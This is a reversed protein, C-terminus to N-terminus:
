CPPPLSSLSCVSFWSRVSISPKSPFVPIMTTAAVLRASTSSGARRRGPRKSRCTDTSTGSEFPRRSIRLTCALFLLTFGSIERASIALRTGPKEPAVQGVEHVLRGDEAPAAVLVRDGGQLDVVRDVADHRAHLAGLQGVALDLAEHGVVLDPVGDAAGEGRAVVGHLLDGDHGAPLSLAEGPERRPLVGGQEGLLLDERGDHPREAPARGLDHDEPLVLHGRAGRPVQLLLM